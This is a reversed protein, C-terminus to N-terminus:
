SYKSGIFDKFKKQFVEESFRLANDRCSEPKITEINEEFKIVAKTLSAMTQEEFFVGTPNICDLGIITELAGGKGYAIVPTGCSQAEIPSIGFDEEAAFIFAKAASLNNYLEDFSASGLLKINPGSKEKIKKFDPGEGIVVLQKEPFNQSFTDVILDIKKYPVMRSCTVYFDNRVSDKKLEFKNTDVPPYILKSDRRYTKMIRKSIFKSIAIFFDVGNSTRVDWIRIKHLLIRTFFGKIGKKMNSEELYQHQLDWAYRIPSYCMCIHTQDPGTIVGKAVAHSSSIVIDYKSMDFQEVAYIMLPLYLRYISKAFPLKQIFSTNIPKNLLFGKKDEPLFDVLSFIDSDPYIAIMQELVREAGAYTVLWDHVIAVKM